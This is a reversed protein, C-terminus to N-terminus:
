RGCLEDLLHVPAESAWTLLAGRNHTVDLQDYLKSILHRLRPESLSLRAAIQGTSAGRLLERLILAQRASLTLLPELHAPRYREGAIVTQMATAWEASSAPGVLFSQGRELVAGATAVSAYILLPVGHTQVLVVAEDVDAPDCVLLDVQGQRIAVLVPDRRGSPVTVELPVEQGVEALTHKLGQLVIHTGALIAIRLARPTAAPEVLSAMQGALYAHFSQIAHDCPLHQAELLAAAMRAALRAPSIPKLAPKPLGSARLVKATAADRDGTIPVLAAAPFHTRTYSGILRGDVDGPLYLDFVVVVQAGEPQAHLLQLGEAGSPTVLTEVPRNVRESFCSAAATIMERAAWDDDIGIVIIPNM